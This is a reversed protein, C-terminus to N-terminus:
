RAANPSGSATQQTRSHANITAADKGGVDNMGINATDPNARVIPMFSRTIFPSSGPAIGPPEVLRRRTIAFLMPGILMSLRTFVYEKDRRPEGNRAMLSVAFSLKASSYATAAYHPELSSLSFGQPNLDEPQARPLRCVSDGM